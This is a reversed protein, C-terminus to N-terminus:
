HGAHSDDKSSDYWVSCKPCFADKDSSRTDHKKRNERDERDNQRQSDRNRDQSGGSTRGAKDRAM